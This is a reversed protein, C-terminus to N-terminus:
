HDEPSDKEDPRVDVPQPAVRGILERYDRTQPEEVPPEHQLEQPIAVDGLEEPMAVLGVEPVAVEGLIELGPPVQSTGNEPTTCHPDVGAGPDAPADDRCASLLGAGAALIWGAARPLARIPGRSPRPSDAYVPAGEADRVIRMCVRETAREVMDQAETRTLAASNHVHLNCESCFRKREDGALSAWTKPCPTRIELDDPREDDRM